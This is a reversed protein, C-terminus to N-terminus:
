KQRFDQPKSAEIIYIGKEVGAGCLYYRGDAYVVWPDAGESMIPNTFHEGLFQQEM